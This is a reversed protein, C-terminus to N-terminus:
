GNHKAFFAQFSSEPMNMRFGWRAAAPPTREDAAQRTLRTSPGLYRLAREAVDVKKALAHLQPRQGFQAALDLVMGLEREVGSEKAQRVLAEKELQRENRALVLPVSLLVTSDDLLVRLAGVVAEELAMERRPEFFLPAGYATLTPRPDKPHDAM